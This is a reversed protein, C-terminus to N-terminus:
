YQHKKVKKFLDVVQRRKKNTPYEKLSNEAFQLATSGAKIGFYKQKSKLSKNAGHELLAEVVLPFGNNAAYMLPTMGGNSRINVDIGKAKLLIKVIEHKGNMAANILPATITKSQYNVDAGAKILQLAKKFEAAGGLLCALSLQQQNDISVTSENSEKLSVRTLIGDKSVLTEGKKLNARQTSKRLTGKDTFCYCTIETNTCSCLGCDKQYSGRPCNFREGLVQIVDQKEHADLHGDKKMYQEIMGQAEELKEQSTQYHALLLQMQNLKDMAQDHVKKFRAPPAPADLGKQYMKKVTQFADNIQEQPIHTGNLLARLSSMHRGAAALSLPTYGQKNKVDVDAGKQLLLKVLEGQNNMVAWLLPTMNQPGVQNIHGSYHILLNAITTYDQAKVGQNANMCAYMLSSYGNSDTVYAYPLKLLEKVKAVDGQMSAKVLELGIKIEEATHGAKNKLQINAGNAILWQYAKAASNGAFAVEMLATNGFETDQKDIFKKLLGHKKFWELASIANNRAAEMFPTGGGATTENVVKSSAAYLRNMAPVNNTYAATIFPTANQKKKGANLRSHVAQRMSGILKAQPKVNVTALFLLVIFLKKMKWRENLSM